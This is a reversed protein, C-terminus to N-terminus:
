AFRGKWGEEVGEGGGMLLIFKLPDVTTKTRRLTTDHATALKPYIPTPDDSLHQANIIKASNM